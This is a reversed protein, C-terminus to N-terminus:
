PASALDDEGQDVRGPQVDDLLVLLRVRLRLRLCIRGGGRRTLVLLRGDAGAGGRPVRCGLGAGLLSSGLVRGGRRVRVAAAGCGRPPLKSAGAPDVDECSASTAPPRAMFKRTRPM